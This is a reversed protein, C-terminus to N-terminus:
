RSSWTGTGKMKSSSLTIAGSGALRQARLPDAGVTGTVTYTDSGDTATAFLAGKTVTGQVPFSSGNENKYVGTVAGDEVVTVAFTGGSKITTDPDGPIVVTMSWSGLLKNIKEEKDLQALRLKVAALLRASLAMLGRRRSELREFKQFAEALDNEAKDVAQFEPQSTAQRRAALVEKEAQAIREKNQEVFRVAELYVEARKRLEKTEAGLEAGSTPAGPHKQRLEDLPKEMAKKKAEIKQDIDDLNAWRELTSMNKKRDELANLEGQLASVAGWTAAYDPLKDMVVDYDPKAEWM